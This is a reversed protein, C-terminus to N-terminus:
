ESDNRKNYICGAIKQYKVNPRFRVKRNPALIGLNGTLVM